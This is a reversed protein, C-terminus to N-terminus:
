WKCKQPVFHRELILDRTDKSRAQETILLQWTLFLILITSTPISRQFDVPGVGRSLYPWSYCNTWSQAFQKWTDGCISIGDGQVVQELAQDGETFFRKQHEPLGELAEAQSCQRQDQWQAGTCLAQSWRGQVRM